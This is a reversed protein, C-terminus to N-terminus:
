LIVHCRIFSLLYLTSNCLVLCFMCQWLLSNLSRCYALKCVRSGHCLRMHQQYYWFTAADAHAGNIGDLLIMGHYGHYGNLRRGYANAESNAVADGYNSFANAESNAEADGGNGFANAESNAIADGWNSAANAESNAIADGASHMCSTLLHPILRVPQLM